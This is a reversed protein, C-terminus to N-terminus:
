PVIVARGRIEGARLDSMAARIDDLPYLRTTVSVQSRAALAVLEELEPMTGILSGMVTLEGVDLDATDM